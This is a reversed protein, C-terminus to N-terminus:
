LGLDKYQKYQDSNIYKNVSKLYSVTVVVTTLITIVTIILSIYAVRKKVAEPGRFYKFFWYLGLPTLFFSFAYIFIERGLTLNEERDKLKKGCSPCFFSNEPIEKGCFRCIMRRRVFGHTYVWPRINLYQKPPNRERRLRDLIM